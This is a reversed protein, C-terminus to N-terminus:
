IRDFFKIFSVRHIRVKKSDKLMFSPVVDGKAYRILCFEGSPKVVHVEKVFISSEVVFAKDGAKFKGM